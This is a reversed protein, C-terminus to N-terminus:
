GIRRAYVDGSRRGQCLKRLLDLTRDTGMWEQQGPRMTEVMSYNFEYNGLETLKLICARAREFGGPLFEFSLSPVPSSIGSLVEAEFGEVDIKIFDPTGYRRILTDLSVVEVEEQRDWDLGRYASAMERTWSQSMSSLTPHKTSTLLKGTEDKAGVAQKLLVIGSDERFWHELLAYCREQPELALVRSGLGRFARIRNGLHAGLDFVLGGKPVFQAYMRRMAAQRFPILHYILYSHMIGRTKKGLLKRIELARYRSEFLFSTLLLILALLSLAKTPLPHDELLALIWFGALVIQLIAATWRAFRRFSPPFDPKLPVVAFLAAFFYRLVGIGLTWVPFGKLCLAFSLLLFSLADAEADLWAGFARGSRGKYRAVKGDVFDGLFALVVLCGSLFELSEVFGILIGAALVLVRGISIFDETGLGPRAEELYKLRAGLAYYLLFPAIVLALNPPTLSAPLLILLPFLLSAPLFGFAPWGRGSSAFAETRRERRRM